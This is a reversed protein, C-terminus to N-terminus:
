RHTSHCDYALHGKRQFQASDICSAFREDVLALWRLQM